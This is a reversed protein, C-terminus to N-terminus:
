EHMEDPSTKILQKEAMQDVFEHIDNELVKHEVEFEDFLVEIIEKLTQRGNALEWLRTGVENLPYLMNDRPNIVVAQTGLTRWAIGKERVIYKDLWEM